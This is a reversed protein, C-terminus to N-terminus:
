PFFNLNVLRLLVLPHYIRTLTYSYDREREGRGREGEGLDNGGRNRKGDVSIDPEERGGDIGVRGVEEDTDDATNM